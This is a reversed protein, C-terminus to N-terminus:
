ARYYNPAFRCAYCRWLRVNEGHATPTVALAATIALVLASVLLEMAISRRLESPGAAELRPTLRKWNRWGLLVVAAVVCVKVTLLRGYTTVTLASIREVHALSSIAGSTVVFAAGFLAIPSFRTLLAAVVQTDSTRLRLALFLLAM